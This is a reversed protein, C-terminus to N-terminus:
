WRSCPAANGALFFHSNWEADLTSIMDWYLTDVFGKTFSATQSWDELARLQALHSATALEAGPEDGIQVAAGHHEMHRLLTQKFQALDDDRCAALLAEVLEDMTLAVAKSIALPIEPLVELQHIWGALPALMGSQTQPATAVLERVNDLADPDTLQDELLRQQHEEIKKLTSTRVADLNGQSIRAKSLGTLDHLLSRISQNRGEALMHLPMLAFATLVQTVDAAGQVSPKKANSGRTTKPKKTLATLAEADYIPTRLSEAM